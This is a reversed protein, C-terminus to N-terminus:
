GQRCPFSALLELVVLLLFPLLDQVRVMFQDVGMSHLTQGFDIFIWLVENMLFCGSVLPFVGLLVLTVQHLLTGFAPSVVVVPPFGMSAAILTRGTAGSHVLSQGFADQFLAEMFVARLDENFISVGRRGFCFRQDFLGCPGLDDLGKQKM